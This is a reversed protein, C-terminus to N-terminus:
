HDKEINSSENTKDTIEFKQVKRKMGSIDVVTREGSNTRELLYRTNAVYCWRLGLYKNFIVTGNVKWSTSYGNIVIVFANKSFCWFRLASVIQSMEYNLRRPSRETYLFEDLGDIIVCEISLYSATKVLSSCIFTRLELFSEFRAIFLSSPISRHRLLTSSLYISRKTKALALAFATKGASHRGVIETIGVKLFM